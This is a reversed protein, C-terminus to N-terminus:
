LCDVLHIRLTSHWPLIFAAGRGVIICRGEVGLSQIVQFLRRTFQNQSLGNSAFGGLCELLWSHHKEDLQELVVVSCHMAQAIRDLLEHDYVPWGLRASVAKAVEDVPVGGERSLAITLRDRTKRVENTDDSAANQPLRHIAELQRNLMNLDIM